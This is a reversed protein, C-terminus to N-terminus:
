DPIVIKELGPEPEPFKLPLERLAELITRTIVLNRYWKKNAPVVFWPAEATSCRALADSYAAMYDDWRARVPLDGASFKWHKAPDALRDELRKKQEAKSIHLFFKLVKTGTEALLREFANIQAYRAEWVSQPVLSEVRVVLVDEYHSRNFIGIYGKPPVQRHVRWLYDHALEEATPAKFNAVRVGMPNVEDFVHKIAGDKGSTDMGQLVVLLAYRSQAYLKEQLVAMESQLEKLEAGAAEKTVAGTDDPNYAALDVRTQGPAIRLHM